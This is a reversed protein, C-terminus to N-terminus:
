ATSSTCRETTESIENENCSLCKLCIYEDKVSGVLFVGGLNAGETCDWIEASLSVSTCRVHEACPWGGGLKLHTIKTLFNLETIGM